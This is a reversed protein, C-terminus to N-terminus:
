SVYMARNIESELHDKCSKHDKLHTSIHKWDGCGSGTSSFVNKQAKPSGYLRCTWCYVRDKIISYALWKRVQSQGASNRTYHVESFSREIGGFLTKPFIAGPLDSAVPQLSGLSTLMQLLASTIKIGTYLSPDNTHQSITLSLGDGKFVKSATM